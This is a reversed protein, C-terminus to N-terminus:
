FVSKGLIDELFRKGKFLWIIFDVFSYDAVFIFRRIIVSFVFDMYIIAIYRKEM